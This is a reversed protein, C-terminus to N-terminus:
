PEERKMDQLRLEGIDTESARLDAFVFFKEPEALVCKKGVMNTKNWDLFERGVDKAIACSEQFVGASKVTSPEGIFHVPEKPDANWHARLIRPIQLPSFRVVTDVKGM